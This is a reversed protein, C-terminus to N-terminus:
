MHVGKNNNVESNGMKEIQSKLKDISLVLVKKATRTQEGSNKSGSESECTCEALILMHRKTGNTTYFGSIGENGDDAWVILKNQKNVQINGRKLSTVSVFPAGLCERVVVLVAVLCVHRCNQYSDATCHSDLSNKKRKYVCVCVCGHWIFLGSVQQSGFGMIVRIVWKRNIEWGREDGEKREDSKM